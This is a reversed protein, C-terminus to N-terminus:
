TEAKHIIDSVRVMVGLDSVERLNSQVISCNMAVFQSGKIYYAQSHETNRLLTVTGETRIITSDQPPLGLVSVPM